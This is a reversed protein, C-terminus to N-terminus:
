LVWQFRNDLYKQILKLLSGSIGLLKLNYILGDHWIKDFIKSLDLFVGQVDLSPNCKLASFIEHSPSVSHNICKKWFGPQCANLLKHDEFFSHM